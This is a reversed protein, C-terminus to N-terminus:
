PDMLQHVQEIIGEWQHFVPVLLACGLLLLAIPLLWLWLTLRPSKPRVSAPSVATGSPKLTEFPAPGLPSFSPRTEIQPTPKAQSPNMMASHGQQQARQLMRGPPTAAGTEAPARHTHFLSLFRLDLCGIHNPDLKLGTEASQLSQALQGYDYYIASLLAHNEADSPDLAIARQISRQAEGHGDIAYYIKAKCYHYYGIQPALNISHAIAGLGETPRSLALLCISSWAYPLADQPTRAVMGQLQALALDYRGELMLTRIQELGPDM